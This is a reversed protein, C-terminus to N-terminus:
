KEPQKLGIHKEHKKDHEVFDEVPVTIYPNNSVSSNNIHPPRYKHLIRSECFKM